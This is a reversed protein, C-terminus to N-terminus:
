VLGAVGILNRLHGPGGLLRRGARDRLVAREGRNAHRASLVGVCGRSPTVLPDSAAAPPPPSAIALNTRTLAPISAPNTRSLPEDAGGVRLGGAAPRVFGGLRVCDSSAAGPETASTPSCRSSAVTTM